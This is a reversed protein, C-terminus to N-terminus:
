MECLLEHSFQQKIQIPRSSHLLIAILLHKPSTAPPSNKPKNEQQKEEQLRAGLRSKPPPQPNQKM